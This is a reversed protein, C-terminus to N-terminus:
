ATCRVLDRAAVGTVPPYEDAVTIPQAFGNITEFRQEAIYLGGSDGRRLTLESTEGDFTVAYRDDGLAIPTVPASSIWCNAGTGYDDQQYDHRVLVADPRIELYGVDREGDLSFTLDYLGALAALAGLGSAPRGSSEDGVVRGGGDGGGGCAGLALM